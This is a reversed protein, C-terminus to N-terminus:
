KTPLYKKFSKECFHSSNRCGLTALMGNQIKTSSLLGTYIVVGQVQLLPM